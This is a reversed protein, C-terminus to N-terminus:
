DDKGDSIKLRELKVKAANHRNNMVAAFVLSEGQGLEIEVDALEVPEAGKKLEYTEIMELAGDSAPRKLLVLQAAASGQWVDASAKANITYTGPAPPIFTLAAIKKGTANGDGGWAGRVEMLVTSRNIALSPQGGFETQGIWKSGGWNMRQYSAADTIKDPWVQEFRWMPKENVVVPNNTAKGKDKGKWDSPAVHTAAFLVGACAAVITATLRYLIM